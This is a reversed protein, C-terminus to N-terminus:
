NGVKIAYNVMLEDTKEAKFEIWYVAAPGIEEKYVIKEGTNNYGANMEKVAAIVEDNEAKPLTVEMKAERRFGGYAPIVFAHFVQTGIM